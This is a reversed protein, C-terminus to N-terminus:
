NMKINKRRKPHRKGEQERRKPSSEDGRCRDNEAENGQATREPKTQSAMGGPNKQATEEDIGWEVRLTPPPSRPGMSESEGGRLRLRSSDKSRGLDEMPSDPEEASSSSSPSSLLSSSSSLRM